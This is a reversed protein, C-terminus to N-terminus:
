APGASRAAITGPERTQALGSPSRSVRCRTQAPRMSRSHGARPGDRVHVDGRHLSRDSSGVAPDLDRTAESGLEVCADGCDTQSAPIQAHLDSFAIRRAVHGALAVELRGFSDQRPHFAITLSPEYADAHRISSRKMSQVARLAPTGRVPVVHVSSSRGPTCLPALWCPRSAGCAVRFRFEPAAIRRAARHMSRSTANHETKIDYRSARTEERNRGLTGGPRGNTLM